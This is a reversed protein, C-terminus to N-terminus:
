KDIQEFFKKLEIVNNKDFLQNEEILSVLTKKNSLTFFNNNSSLFNFTAKKLDYSFIAAVGLVNLNENKLLNCVKIVSGGTSILDEVVVVNQNDFYRGEIRSRRGHDKPEPRVYIMPLNMKQAIMSAWSIGSTAVGAVLNVSPYNLRINDIFYNVIINRNEVYSILVRNDCYIPSIIGSAWEFKNNFNLEIAKTELLISAVKIEKNM